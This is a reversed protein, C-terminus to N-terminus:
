VASKALPNPLFWRAIVLGGAIMMAVDGLFLYIFHIWDHHFWLPEGLHMM